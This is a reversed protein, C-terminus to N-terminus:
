ACSSISFRGVLEGVTDRFEYSYTAGSAIKARMENACAKTRISREWATLNIQSRPFSVKYARTLEKIGVRVDTLTVAENVRIPLRDQVKAREMTLAQHLTWGNYIPFIGAAALIIMFAFIPHPAVFHLSPPIQFYPRRDSLLNNAYEVETRSLYGLKRWMIGNSSRWEKYCATKYLQRFGLIMATLDVAKENRYLPHALSDLVVHSLEHAIAIAAQDYTSEALFSKRIYITLKLERFATTGYGPMKGPMEIWAPAEGGDENKHGGSNVRAVVLRVEVNMSQRILRVLGEYDKAKHLSKLAATPVPPVVPLVERLQALYGKIEESM